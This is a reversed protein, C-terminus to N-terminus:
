ALIMRISAILVGLMFLSVCWRITRYKACLIRSVHYNEIAYAREVLHEDLGRLESWYDDPTKRYSIGQWFILSRNNKSLRPYLASAGVLASVAFLLASGWNAITAINNSPPNAFLLVAFALSAGVLAGVKADALAVYQNLDGHVGHGFGIPPGNEGGNAANPQERDLQTMFIVGRMNM